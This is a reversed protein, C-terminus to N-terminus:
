SPIIMMDEKRKLMKGHSGGDLPHFELMRQTGLGAQRKAENAAGELNKREEKAMGM